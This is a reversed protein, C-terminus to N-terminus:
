GVARTMSTVRRVVVGHLVLWLWPDILADFINGSPLHALTFLGSTAILYIAFRKQGLVWAMLVLALAAWLAYPGFGWQYISQATLPHTLALTDLLLLWGLLVGVLPPWPSPSTTSPPLWQCWRRVLGLCLCVAMLSPSQFSLGLWYAPSAPGPWLTLAAACGATALWPKSVGQRGGRRAVWRGCAVMGFGIVVAWLAHRVWDMVALAPLMPLANM